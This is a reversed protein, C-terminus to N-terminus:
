LVFVSVKSRIQLFVYTRCKASRSKPLRRLVLPRSTAQNVNAVGMHNVRSSINDIATEMNCHELGNTNINPLKKKAIPIIYIYIYISAM